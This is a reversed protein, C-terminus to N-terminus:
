TKGVARVFLLAIRRALACDLRMKATLMAVLVLWVSPAASGGLIERMPTGNAPMATLGVLVLASAHIPETVMGAIVCIFIATQRWGQPTIGTPAPIVHAILLYL